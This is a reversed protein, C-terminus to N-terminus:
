PGPEPNRVTIPVAGLRTGDVTFTILYDGPEPVRLAGPGFGMIVQARLTKIESISRIPARYNLRHEVLCM